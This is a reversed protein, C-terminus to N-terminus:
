HAAHHNFADAAVSVLVSWAFFFYRGTTPHKVLPQGNRALGVEYRVGELEVFGMPHAISFCAPPQHVGLVERSIDADPM